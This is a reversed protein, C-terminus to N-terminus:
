DRLREYREILEKSPSPVDKKKLVVLRKDNTKDVIDYFELVVHYAPRNLFDDFVVLSNNDIVDFCKLCCAVRFRGDIMVLDIPQKVARIHESYSIWMEATSNPGPHGWTNSRTDMENYILQVRPDDGLRQKVTNYWAKDSEVSIITKINPRLYAQYTSGGSGFEFYHTAADLYSYFLPKDNPALQPEM